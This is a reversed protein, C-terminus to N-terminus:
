RVTVTAAPAGRPSQVRNCTSNILRLVVKYRGPPAPRGGALTGNWASTGGRTTAAYNKLPRSGDARFILIRPRIGQNGVYHITVRAHGPAAVTAPTISTIRLPVPHTQVTVPEPAGTNQNAILLSRDQQALTVRLDYVGDPAVAGDSIRGNWVFTRRQYTTLYRGSGPLVRVVRGAPNVVSVTVDDARNVLYFSVRTRRYSVPVLRGKPNPVRCTRGSVPNIVSPVPVPYGAILPTSVKLHQTVFFAGITAIALAAFAGVAM